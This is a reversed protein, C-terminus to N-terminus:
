VDTLVRERCSARGIETFQQTLDRPAAFTHRTCFAGVSVILLPGDGARDYAIVTGDASTVTEVPTGEKTTGSLFSSRAARFEGAAVVCRGPEPIVGGAVLLGDPGHLCTALFM